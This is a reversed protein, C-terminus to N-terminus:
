RRERPGMVIEGHGDLTGKLLGDHGGCGFDGGRLSLPIQRANPLILLGPKIPPAFRVAAWKLWFTDPLLPVPKADFVRGNLSNSCSPEEFFRM